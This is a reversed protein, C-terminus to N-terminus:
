QSSSEPHPAREPQGRAKGTTGSGGHLPYGLVREWASRIEPPNYWGSTVNNKFSHLKPLCILMSKIYVHITPFRGIKPSVIHFCHIKSSLFHPM